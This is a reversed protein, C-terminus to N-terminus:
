KAGRAERRALLDDVATAPASSGSLVRLAAEVDLIVRALSATERASETADLREAVISRLVGLRKAPDAPHDTLAQLMSKTSTNM